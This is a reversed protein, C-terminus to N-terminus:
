KTYTTKKPEADPVVPLVAVVAQAADYDAQSIPYTVAM